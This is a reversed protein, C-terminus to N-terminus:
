PMLETIMKLVMIWKKAMSMSFILEMTMLIILIEQWLTTASMNLSRSKLLCQSISKTRSM